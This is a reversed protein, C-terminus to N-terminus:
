RSWRELLQKMDELAAMMVRKTPVETRGRDDGRELSERLAPTIFFDHEQRWRAWAILDPKRGKADDEDPLRFYPVDRLMTITPASGRLPRESFAGDLCPMELRTLRAMAISDACTVDIPHCSHTGTYHAELIGQALFMSAHIAVDSAPRPKWHTWRRRDGCFCWAERGEPTDRMYVMETDIRRTHERQKDTWWLIGEKPALLTRGGHGHIKLLESVNQYTAVSEHGHWTMVCAGHDLIAGEAVAGTGSIGAVDELRILDFPIIM